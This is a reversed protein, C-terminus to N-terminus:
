ERDTLFYPKLENNLWIYQSIRLNTFGWVPKQLKQEPEQDWCDCVKQEPEQAWCDCVKESKVDLSWDEMPLWLLVSIPMNKHYKPLQWLGDWLSRPADTHINWLNDPMSSQKKYSM